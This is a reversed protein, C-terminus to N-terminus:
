CLKFHILILLGICFVLSGFYYAKEYGKKRIYGELGKSGIYFFGRGKTPKQINDKSLNLVPNFIIINLLAQALIFAAAALGFGFLLISSQAFFLGLFLMKYTHWARNRKADGPEDIDQNVEIRAFALAVLVMAAISVGFIILYNM